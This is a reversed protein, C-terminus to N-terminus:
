NAPPIYAFNLSENYLKLGILKKNNHKKWILQNLKYSIYASGAGLVAGALIDTPYHVGLNMRSYAVSTAWLASPAIVYWRPYHLCLSTASAFAISTHGSPMSPSDEHAINHIYGPYTEYPRPRKISYKLGYTLATNIGMGVITACTEKLLKDNQTALATIGMVVPIGASVYLTSNSIAKSFGHMESQQNFWRLSQADKTQALTPSIFVFYYLLIPILRKM